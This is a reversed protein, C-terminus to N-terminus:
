ALKESVKLRLTQGWSLGKIWESCERLREADLSEVAGTEIQMRNSWDKGLPWSNYAIPLAFPNGWYIFYRSSKGTPATVPIVVDDERRTFSLLTGREDTVRLDDGGSNKPLPVAVGFGELSKLSINRASVAIRNTWFGGRDLWLDVPWATQAMGAFAHLAVLAAIKVPLGSVIYM